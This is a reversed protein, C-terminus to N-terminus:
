HKLENPAQCWTRALLRSIMIKHQRPQRQNQQQKAVADNGLVSGAGTKSEVIIPQGLERQLGEGLARALVDTSGGPAFPTIIRIPKSAFTQAHTQPVALLAACALMKLRLRATTKHM